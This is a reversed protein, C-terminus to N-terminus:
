LRSGLTIEAYRVVDQEHSVESLLLQYTAARFVVPAYFADAGTFSDGALFPGGFRELGQQWLEDVRDIDKSL